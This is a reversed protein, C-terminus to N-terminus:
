KILRGVLKATYDVRTGEDLWVVHGAGETRKGPVEVSIRGQLLDLHAARYEALDGVDKWYGKAVHGWLSRGSALLAPFLEKGFDYSRGPPIAAFVPPELLYIGTNITDSFVEGWTPKELFRIIRGAEDTIVIGYSLPMEVRTLVMTAEAHRERHFRVAEALDFDTLVDGSIVLVAEGLDGVAFKVAGATGLDATPTVYHMRVGWRSGDGFHGTITEPLFYLLVTLDTFGHRQLLRVTHEMIPVNGVPVLPKPIHITLPRLRTGFGGAMIVAKM